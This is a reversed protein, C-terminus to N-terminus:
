MAPDWGLRLVGLEGRDVEKEKEEVGNWKRDLPQGQRRRREPKVRMKGGRVAQRREQYSSESYCFKAPPSYM